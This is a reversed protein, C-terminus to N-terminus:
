EDLAPDTSGTTAGPTTTTFTTGANTTGTITITTSPGTTTSTITSTGGGGPSGTGTYSGSNGLIVLGWAEIFGNGANAAGGEIWVTGGKQGTTPPFNSPLPAFVDGELSGNQGNFCVAATSCNAPAPNTQTAYLVTLPDYGSITRAGSAFNCTFSSPRALPNRPGCESPWYFKVSTGNSSVGIRAGDLAFFTYGDGATMSNAIQLTIGAGSVCYIGPPGPVVTLTLTTQTGPPTLLVCRNPYHLSADWTTGASLPTPLPPPPVPWFLPTTGLDRLAKACLENSDTADGWATATCQSTNSPPSPPESPCLTRNLALKHVKKPRNGAFHLGGNTGLSEIRGGGAGEYRIANCTPSMIFASAGELDGPTTVTQTTTSEAGPITQTTGAVTTGPITTTDTTDPAVLPTVGAVARASVEDLLGGLGIADLFYEDISRTLRVEVLNQNGKWPNTYCNEDAPAGPIPFGSADRDSCQHLVSPGGNIESYCEAAKKVSNIPPPGSPCASSLSGILNQAAALAAADAANQTRRKEGFAHAGDIVLGMIGILVPLAVMLM